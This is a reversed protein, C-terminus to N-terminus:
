HETSVHMQHHRLFGNMKMWPEGGCLMCYKYQMNSQFLEMWNYVFSVLLPVDMKEMLEGLNDYDEARVGFKVCVGETKACKLLVYVSQIGWLMSKPSPPAIFPICYKPFIGFIKAITTPVCRLQVTLCMSDFFSVPWLKDLLM